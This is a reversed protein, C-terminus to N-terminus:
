RGTEDIAKRLAAPYTAHELELIRAALTEATDTPLVPCRTQLVIKGDDYVENVYHVTCGSEEERAALVAEHVAIGYMGKGGHKPLLSPHINLVTGGLHRLVTPPVIRLFGALCLWQCDGLAEIMRVDYGDGYPVVATRIGLSEAIGLAPADAKPGIVIEVRAPFGPTRGAAVLAAM